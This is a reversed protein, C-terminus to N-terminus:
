IMSYEKEEKENEKEKFMEGRYIEIFDDDNDNDDLFKHDNNNKMDFADESHSLINSSKFGSNLSEETPSKLKGSNKAEVSNSTFHKMSNRRRVEGRIWGTTLSLTALAAAASSLPIPVSSSIIKKNGEGDKKEINDNILNENDTVTFSSINNAKVIKSPVSMTSVSAHTTCTGSASSSVNTNSTSGSSSSSTPAKMDSSTVNSIIMTDSNSEYSENITHNENRSKNRNWKKNRGHDTKFDEVEVKENENENGSGNQNENRMEKEKEHNTSDTNKDGGEAQKNDKSNVPTSASPFNGQM